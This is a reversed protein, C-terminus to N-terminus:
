PWMRSNTDVAGRYNTHAIRAVERLEDLNERMESVGAAWRDFAERQAIAASSSWVLHLDTIHREVETLSIEVFQGFQSMTDVASDLQELDM